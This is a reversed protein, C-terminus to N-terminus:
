QANKPALAGYERKNPELYVLGLVDFIDKETKCPISPGLIERGTEGYSAPRIGHDSLSYGKFCSLFPWCLLASRHVLM